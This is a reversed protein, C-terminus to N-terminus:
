ALGRLVKPSLHWILMGKGASAASPIDIRCVAGKKFEISSPAAGMLLSAFQSCHPEHGAVVAREVNKKRSIWRLTEAPDASPLLLESIEIAGKFGLADAVIQATERARRLPSSAILNVTDVLTALGKASEEMKAIGEPTLPREADPQAGGREAAIGHRVIYLEM